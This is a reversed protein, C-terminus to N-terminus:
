THSISSVKGQKGFDPTFVVGIEVTILDIGYAGKWLM